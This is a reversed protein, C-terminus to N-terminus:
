ENSRWFSLFIQRQKAIGGWIGPGPMVISMSAFGALENAHFDAL